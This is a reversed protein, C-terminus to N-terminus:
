IRIENLLQCWILQQIWGSQPAAPWPPCPPDHQWREAPALPINGRLSYFRHLDQRDCQHKHEALHQFVSTESAAYSRQQRILSPRVGLDTIQWKSYSDAVTDLLTCHKCCRGFGRAPTRSGSFGQSRPSSWCSLITAESSHLVTGKTWLHDTFWQIGIVTIFQLKIDPSPCVKKQSRCNAKKQDTSKRM